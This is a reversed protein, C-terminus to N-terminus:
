YLRVAACCVGRGNVGPPDGLTRLQRDLPSNSQGFTPYQRGYFPVGVVLQSAPIGLALSDNIVYKM